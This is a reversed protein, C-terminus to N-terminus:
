PKGAIARELQEILPAMTRQDGHELIYNKASNCALVLADRKRTLAEVNKTSVGDLAIEAAGTLILALQERKFSRQFGAPLKAFMEEALVKGINEPTPAVKPGSM